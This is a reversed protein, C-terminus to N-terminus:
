AFYAKQMKSLTKEDGAKGQDEEQQPLHSLKGEQM